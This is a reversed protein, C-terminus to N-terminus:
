PNELAALIEFVEHAPMGSISKRRWGCPGSAAPGVGLTKMGARRGAETVAASDGVCLCRSPKVGMRRAALLFIGRHTSNKGIDTVIADFYYRDLGARRL